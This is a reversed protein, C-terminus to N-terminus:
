EGLFDSLAGRLRKAMEKDLQINLACTDIGSEQGAASVWMSFFKQNYNIDMVTKNKVRIMKGCPRIETIQAM